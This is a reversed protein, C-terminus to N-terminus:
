AAKRFNEGGSLAEEMREKIKTKEEETTAERQQELLEYYLALGSTAEPTGEDFSPLDQTSNDPNNSELNFKM